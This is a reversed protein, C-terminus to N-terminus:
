AQCFANLRRVRGSNDAGLVACTLFWRPMRRSRWSQCAAYGPYRKLPYSPWCPPKSSQGCCRTRRMSRCPETSPANSKVSSMAPGLKVAVVILRATDAVWRDDHQVQDDPHATALKEATKWRWDIYRDPNADGDPSRAPVGAHFAPLVSLLMESLPHDMTIEFEM